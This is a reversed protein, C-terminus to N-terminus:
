EGSCAPLDERGVSLANNTFQCGYDPDAVVKPNLVRDGAPKPGGNVWTLWDITATAIETASFDCHSAARIARQVLMDGNGRLEARKRYLQQHKFPVYFDGLTHMTLVPVDFNGKVLPLWRVGDSRIPNALFDARERDINRNFQWEEWTPHRRDEWRYLKLSNDYINKSLIGTITGDAGGTGLVAYQWTGNRFGQEFIPREGGTLNMAIRYLKEGAEGKPEWANEGEVSVFLQNLILPLLEPFQEYPTDGYGALEQAVRPYDGLWAFQNQEAQCLPMAGEYRVRYRATYLTEKEVAVAATHGGLSGGAILRQSVEGYDAGWDRVLYDRLELALKNTDEVAARVDYYNASYSSAAWAYGAGVVVNRFPVSPVVRNLAEGEGGYGRTWMILGGNWDDPIEVTYAAEGQIGEYRGWHRNAAVVEPSLGAASADFAIADSVVFERSDHERTQEPWEWWIASAPVSITLLAASIGIGVLSRKTNNM